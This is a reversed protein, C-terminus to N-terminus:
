SATKQPLARDFVTILLLALSVGIMIWAILHVGHDRVSTHFVIGTIASSGISDLHGFTRLLGFTTEPREATVRNAM